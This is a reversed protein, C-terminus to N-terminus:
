CRLRVPSKANVQCMAEPKAPIRSAFPSVHESAKRNGPVNNSAAQTGEYPGPASVDVALQKLLAGVFAPLVVAHRLARVALVALDYRANM